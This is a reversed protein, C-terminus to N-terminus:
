SGGEVAEAEPVPGLTSEDIATGKLGDRAVRSNKITRKEIKQNTVAQDALDATGIKSAAYAGGGLAAVLAIIAV